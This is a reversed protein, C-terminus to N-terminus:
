YYRVLCINPVASGNPRNLELPGTEVRLRAREKSIYLEINRGAIKASDKAAEAAVQTANTQWILVLLAFV